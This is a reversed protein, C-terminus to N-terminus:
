VAAWVESLKGNDAIYLTANGHDSVHLVEGQYDAPVESTDNVRLGFEAIQEAFDELLWFGYDCGDGPNAGFYAYPPAFDNLANFLNDLVEPANEDDADIERAEGILEMYTNRQARGDDSCWEDANNQVHYELESAFDPLLDELRMTGHSVTGFSAHKM